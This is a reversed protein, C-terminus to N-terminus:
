DNPKKSICAYYFGDMGAEGPLIQRGYPRQQGWEAAIPHERADAHTALFDAVVSENERKLVSCTAYVLLGGSTLLPWLRELLARQRAALAQIDTAQRLVKIDPHRRIVGTASCPADVLIRDYALGDWWTSPNLADGAILRAKLGLRDLNERIRLLRAADIDLALLRALDPQTELIHGTKGGPAACADLVRLGPQLDLLGATLQAATDQVSVLGEQFGPLQAVDRCATELVVGATTYPAPAAQIGVDALRKLYAQRSLRMVNVRLSYPPRANNAAVIAQWDNPWDAQLCDLLWAPHASKLTVDQELEALWATRRRQFNHLVANVLGTAWPKGLRRAAAVTEAIAAYEPVRLYLLQYLGILLLAQIQQERVKLPKDLLRSLLYHLQPYWRLTGYCLEQLLGRDREAVQQLLPPLTLALSRHGGIIQALVQAAATRPTM